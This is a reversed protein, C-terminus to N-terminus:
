TMPTQVVPMAVVSPSTMIVPPKMMVPIMTEQPKMMVPSMTTQNAPNGFDQNIKGLLRASVALDHM